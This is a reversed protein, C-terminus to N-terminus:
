GPRVEREYPRPTVSGAGEDCGPELWTRAPTTRSSTSPRSTSTASSPIVRSSARRSWRPARDALSPQEGWPWHPHQVTSTSPAGRTAQTVGRRRTAPRRTVVTSPSSGSTAVIHASAKAAVPALWHPNQVGPIM